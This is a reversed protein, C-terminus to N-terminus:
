RYARFFRRIDASLAEPQDMAAFHGGEPTDLRHVVNYGRKLWSDPPPPVLDYAPLFFGTPPTVRQGPGMRFENNQAAAWYFWTSTPFSGSVWYIMINTLIEDMPLPPDRDAAAGPWGHWKETIWAALGAPSDAMAFALTQPKTSQQALYGGERAMRRKAKAIWRQEDADPRTGEPLDPRLPVMNFHVARLADPHDIGLWATVLSGWDGGQAFFREHGLKEVVLQRWLRATGRPGIPKGLGRSFGYGPLSPCIVTFADDADGGFREPHALPEVIKHFEFVSGPWGHTIVLPQPSSGSGPEIQVHIDLDGYEPDSLPVLYQPWRNLVREWARWDYGDRWYAVLRQMYDRNAGYVWGAADPEPPWIVRDLRGALDALVSDAIEIRFPRM